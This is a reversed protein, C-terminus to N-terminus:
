KGVPDASSIAGSWFPAITISKLSRECYGDLPLGNSGGFYDVVYVSVLPLHYAQGQNEKMRGTSQRNEIRLERSM